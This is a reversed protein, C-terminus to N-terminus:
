YVGYLRFISGSIYNSGNGTAINIQSIATAAEWFMSILRIYQTTATRRETSTAIAGKNFTTEKYYPIYISGIGPNGSLATAGPIAAIINSDGESASSTTDYAQKNEYYYNTATTDGNFQLQLTESVQGSRDSRAIFEIILHTYKSPISTFSVSTGTPTQESILVRAGTVYALGTSTTSDVVINQGDSGSALIAATNAGTGVALDGKNDWIADSAVESAGGGSALDMSITARDGDVSVNFGTTFDLEHVEGKSVSNEYVDTGPISADGHLTLVGSDDISIYNGGVVDGSYFGETNTTIGNFSSNFSKVYEDNYSSSGESILGYPSNTDRTEFASNKVRVDRFGTGGNEIYFYHTTPTNEISNDYKVVGYCNTVNLDGVTRILSCVGLDTADATDIFLDFVCKKVEPSYHTTGIAIYKLPCYEPNANDLTNDFGAELYISVNDITPKYTYTYIGFVSSNGDQYDSSREVRITGNRIIAGEKMQDIYIGYAEGGYDNYVYIDFTDLIIDKSSGKYYIGVSAPTDDGYGM